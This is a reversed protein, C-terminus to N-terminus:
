RSTKKRKRKSEGSPNWEPDVDTYSYNVKPVNRKSSRTQRLPSQTKKVRKYTGEQEITEIEFRKISTVDLLNVEEQQAFTEVTRQLCSEQYITNSTQDNTSRFQCEIKRANENALNQHSETDQVDKYYNRRILHSNCHYDAHLEQKKTLSLEYESKVIQDSRKRTNDLAELAAISMMPMAPYNDIKETKIPTGAYAMAHAKLRKKLPLKNEADKKFVGKESDCQVGLKELSKNQLLNNEIKCLLQDDYLKEIVVENKARDHEQVAPSQVSSHTPLFYPSSEICSVHTDTAPHICQRCHAVIDYTCNLCSCHSRGCSSGSKAHSHLSTNANIQLSCSVSTCHKHYPVCLEGNGACNGYIPPLTTPHTASIHLPHQANVEHPHSHIANFGPIACNPAIHNSINFEQKINQRFTLNSKSKRKEMSKSMLNVEQYMPSNVSLMDTSLPAKKSYVKTDAFNKDEPEIKIGEVSCKNEQYPLEKNYSTLELNCSAYDLSTIAEFQGCDETPSIWNKEKLRNIEEDSTHDESNEVAKNIIYLNSNPSKQLLVITEGNLIVNTNEKVTQANNEIPAFNHTLADTDYNISTEPHSIVKCLESDGNGSEAENSTVEVRLEVKDITDEPYIGVIRNIIEASPNELLLSVTNSSDNTDTEDDTIQNYCAYRLSAYDKVKIQDCKVDSEPKLHPIHQSVSALLSLGDINDQLESDQVIYKNKAVTCVNKEETVKYLNNCEKSTIELSVKDSKCPVDEKNVYKGINNDCKDGIPEKFNTDICSNENNEINENPCTANITNSIDKKDTSYSEFISERINDISSKNESINENIEDYSCIELEPRTCFKDKVRSVCKSSKSEMRSEFKKQMTSIEVLIGSSGQKEEYDLVNKIPSAEVKQIRGTSITENRDNNQPTILEEHRIESNVTRNSYDSKCVSESFCTNNLMKDSSVNQNNRELELNESLTIRETVEDNIVNFNSRNSSDANDKSNYQTCITTNNVGPCETELDCVKKFSEVKERTEPESFVDTETLRKIVTQKNFSDNEKEDSQINSIDANSLCNGNVVSNSIKSVQKALPLIETLVTKSIMTSAKINVEKTNVETGISKRISETCTILEKDIEMKNEDNKLVVTRCANSENKESLSKTACVSQSSDESRHSINRSTNSPHTLGVHEQRKKKHSAKVIKLDINKKAEELWPLKRSKRKKICKELVIDNTLDIIVIENSKKCKRRLRNKNSKITKSNVHETSINNSFTGLCKFSTQEELNLTKFTNLLSISENKKNKDSIISNVNNDVYEVDKKVMDESMKSNIRSSSDIPTAIGDQYVSGNSKRCYQAFMECHKKIDFKHQLLAKTSNPQSKPVKPLVDELISSSFTSPLPGLSAIAAATIQDKVAVNENIKRWLRYIFFYRIYMISSEPHIPINKIIKTIIPDLIHHYSCCMLQVKILTDLLHEMSHELYVYLCSTIRACIKDHNERSKRSAKLEMDIYLALLDSMNNLYSFRDHDESLERYIYLFLMLTESISDKLKAARLPRTYCENVSVSVNRVYFQMLETLSAMSKETHICRCMKKFELIWPFLEIISPKSEDNNLKLRGNNKVMEKKTDQVRANENQMSNIREEVVCSM